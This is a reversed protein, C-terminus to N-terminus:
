TQQLFHVLPVYIEENDALKPKATHIYVIYVACSVKHTSSWNYTTASFHTPILSLSHTYLGPLPSQERLEFSGQYFFCFNHVNM